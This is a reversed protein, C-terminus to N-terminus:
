FSKRLSKETHILCNNRLLKKSGTVVSHELDFCYRVGDLDFHWSTRTKSRFNFFIIPWCHVLCFINVCILMFWGLDVYIFAVFTIECVTGYKNTFWYSAKVHIWVFKICRLWYLGVYFLMMVISYLMRWCSVVHLRWINPCCMAGMIQLAVWAYPFM